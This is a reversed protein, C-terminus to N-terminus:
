GWGGGSQSGSGGSGSSSSAGSGSSHGTLAAGAPTVLNWRGGFEVEGQGNTDGAANDQSFYYLPHHHYTIQTTGDTRKTTGFGAAQVGSGAKPMGSSTAPPWFTACPGSCTSRAGKDKAFVYLSHGSGDVLFSGESGKTMKVTSASRTSSSTNTATGSSGYGGCASLALAAAALPVGFKLPAPITRTPM